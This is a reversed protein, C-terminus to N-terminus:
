KSLNKELLVKIDTLLDEVKPKSAEIMEQEQKALIASALEAEKAENEKKHAIEEAKAKAKGILYVITFVTLAIVLFDLINQLFLGYTIAHEAQVLNGLGDYQAQEIVIKLNEFSRGRGLILGILPTIIDKVMSAVIKGFAGGVIVAVALDLVNGKKIFKGFEGFFKKM